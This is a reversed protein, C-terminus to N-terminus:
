RHSSRSSRSFVSNLWGPYDRKIRPTREGLPFSLAYNIQELAFETHELLAISNYDSDLAYGTVESQNIYYDALDYGRQKDTNSALNKLVSSCSVDFGLGRLKEAKSNWDDFCGLDPCLFVRRDKLPLFVEIDSWKCGNKGGTAIWLNEPMIVTMLIATKESEVICVTKGTEATLQHEGYFCQRLNPDDNGSKRMLSKGAFFVKARGKEPTDNEKLRRGTMPNYLMIKAQRPRGKADIQWFINAGKWRKSTGIAFRSILADAIDNGFLVVLYHAFCNEGYGRLTSTIVSAAIYDTKRPLPISVTKRHRAFDPKFENKRSPNDKFFDKMTYHYGCSQVRDCRGVFDPLPDGTENDVYRVFRKKECSPCLHKKSTSDLSFRHIM